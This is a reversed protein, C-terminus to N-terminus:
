IKQYFCFFCQNMFYVMENELALKIQNPCFYSLSNLKIAIKLKLYQDLNSDCCLKDGRKGWSCQKM